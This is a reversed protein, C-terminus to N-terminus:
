GGGHPAHAPDDQTREADQAEELSRNRDKLWLTTFLVLLVVALVGFMVFMAAASSM